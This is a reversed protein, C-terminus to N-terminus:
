RLAEKENDNVDIINVLSGELPDVLRTTIVQDGPKIGKSIYAHDNQIRVVEVDTSYLRNNRIVLVKNEFSVSTRPLEIVDTMTKGPIIVAAFMGAVLQFPANQQNTTIEAIVKMSRTEASYTSIRNLQGIFATEPAETWYINVNVKEPRGFWNSFHNHNKEINLWDVADKGYLPLEVELVSDDAIVTTKTGPSVYQGAEIHHSIIRCTFPATVRCRNLNIKAKKMAQQVTALKDAANNVAKETAEVSAISGVKNKNLLRNARELEKKALTLDKELIAKRKQNFEYDTRYDIDDVEFLLEGQQIIEGAKLKPHIKTVTGAVEVALTVTRVSKLEGHSHLYVPVDKKNAIITEVKIPREKKASKQPPKKGKALLIFISTAVAIILLCLVIRPWVSRKEEISNKIEQM